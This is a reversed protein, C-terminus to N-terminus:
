EEARAGGGGGGADGEGGGARAGLEGAPADVDVREVRQGARPVDDVDDVVARLAAPDGLLPTFDKFLVGPRPFDPVDRIRASVLAALDDRHM